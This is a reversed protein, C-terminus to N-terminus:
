AAQEKRVWRWRACDCDWDLCRRWERDLNPKNHWRFPHGCDGCSENDDKPVAECSCPDSAIALMLDGCVNCKFGPVGEPQCCDMADHQVEYPEECAPCLYLTVRTFAMASVGAGGRPALVRGGGRRDGM